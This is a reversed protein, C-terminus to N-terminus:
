QLHLGYTHYAPASISPKKSLASVELQGMLQPSIHDIEIDSVSESTQDNTLKGSKKDELESGEESNDGISLPVQKLLVQASITATHPLCAQTALPCDVTASSGSESTLAASASKVHPPNHRITSWHAKPQVPQSDTPSDPLSSTM